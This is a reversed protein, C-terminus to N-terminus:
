LPVMANVTGYAPGEQKKAMNPTYPQAQKRFLPAPGSRLPDRQLLYGPAGATWVAPGPGLRAVAGLWGRVNPDDEERGAGHDNRLCRTREKGQDDGRLRALGSM